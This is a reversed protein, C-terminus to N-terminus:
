ATARGAREVVDLAERAEEAQPPRAGQRARQPAGPLRQFAIVSLGVSVYAADKVANTLDDLPTSGDTKAGVPAAGQTAARGPDGYRPGALQQLRKHCCRALSECPPRRHAMPTPRVATPM